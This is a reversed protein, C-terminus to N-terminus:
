EGLPILIRIEKSESFDYDIEGNFQDVIQRVVMLGMSTSTSFDFDEPFPPGDDHYSLILMDDRRYVGISINLGHESAAHKLSNFSLESFIMGISLAKKSHVSVPDKHVMELSIESTSYSTIIKRCLDELYHAIDIAMSDEASQLKQHVVSIANIRSLLKENRERLEENESDSSQLYIFSTILNLNNKVRHHLEKLLFDKENLSTNLRENIRDRERILTLTLRLITFYSVILLAAILLV